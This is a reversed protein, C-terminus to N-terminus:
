NALAAAYRYLAVAFVQHLAAALAGAALLGLAGIGIVILGDGGPSLVVM